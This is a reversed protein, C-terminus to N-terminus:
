KKVIKYEKSENNKTIRLIYIGPSYPSMDFASYSNNLKKSELMRGSTNYLYIVTGEINSINELRIKLEGKTPNPFVKIQGEGLSEFGFKKETESLEEALDADSVETTDQETTPQQELPIITRSVRNGADDYGFSVTQANLTIGTFFILILLNITKMNKLNQLKDNSM